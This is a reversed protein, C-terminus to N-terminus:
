AGYTTSSRPVAARRARPRAPVCAPHARPARAVEDAPHQPGRRGGRTGTDAAPSRRSRRAARRRPSRPPHSSGGRHPPSARDGRRGVADDDFAVVPCADIGRPRERRQGDRHERSDRARCRRGVHGRGRGRQSRAPEHEHVELELLRAEGLEVRVVEGFGRCRTSGYRPVSSSGRSPPRDPPACPATRPAEPSRRHRASACRPYRDRRSRRRRGRAPPGAAGDPRRVDDHAPMGCTYGTYSRPYAADSRVTSDHSADAGPEDREAAVGAERVVVAVVADRHSPGGGVREAAVAVEVGRPPFGGHRSGTMVHDLVSTDAIELHARRVLRRGPQQLDVAVRRFLFLNGAFAQMHVVAAGPGFLGNQPRITM